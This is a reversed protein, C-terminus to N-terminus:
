LGAEIKRAAQIAPGMEASPVADFAEQTGRWAFVREQVGSISVRRGALVKARRLAHTLAAERPAENTAEQVARRVDSVTAYPATWRQFFERVARDIPPTMVDIARLKAANMPARSGASFGELSACQMWQRVSAIFEPRDLLGYLAEYYEPPQPHTPNDIVIVRRDSNDFPLADHHNSFFLWRLCNQERYQMGYKHNIKRNEMTVTAKLAEARQYRNSDMGERVEDVTALLKESLDGNYDGDLVEGVQVGLAVYGRFVRALVSSLWNRGTGTAETVMLYATHPLEGPRQVIHALWQLFRTREAEVPVLYTVHALFPVAWEQWNEPPVLVPLGRWTNYAVTHGNAGSTPACFEPQGPRWTLVGATKRAPHTKWQGLSPVVREKGTDPDKIRERSAAFSAAAEDFKMVKRGPRYVVGTQTEILVLDEVMQETTLVIPLISVGEGVGAGIAKAEAAQELRREHVPTWWTLFTQRASALEKLLLGERNDKIALDHGQVLDYVRRSDGGTLFMLRSLLSMRAESRRGSAEIERMDPAWLQHLTWGGSFAQGASPVHQELGNLKAMLRETTIPERWGDVPGAHLETDLVAPAPPAPAVGGLLHHLIQEPTYPAAGPAWSVIRTYHPEAKLHWFGPLRLVRNIGKAGVDGAWRAVLADLYGPADTLSLGEVRWYLHHKGPSSEVVAHPPLAAVIPAIDRGPEDIDLWLARVATVDSLGRGALNTRNVTWFVGHGQQQLQQLREGCQEITGHLIHGGHGEERDHFTQFTFQTDDPAVCRLFAGTYEYSSM